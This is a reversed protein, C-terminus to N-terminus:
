ISWLVAPGVITAAALVGGMMAGTVGPLCADTGTLYLGPITTRPALARARFREPSCSLGYIEGREYNAFHRTTVPTSLECCDIRARTGPLNRELEGLLRETLDAKLSDYDEGRRKWRTDSWREFWDYPVPAIVEITSRGPYRKEFTPDKASPFSIFIVPFAAEGSPPSQEFRRLSEDHDPQDYIWLNTGPPEAEGQERKLGVYLCLHAMSAPIERLPGPTSRGGLLRRFTNSAGADSIVIPARLERGDAMRVGVARGGEELIRSVDANVLIRGGSAEVVPVISAAMQAAGGVPYSAGEWYHHAIIAHIAFRSRAPPLGYDGWQGTLVGILEQNSTLKSLVQGTTQNAWRMFPWRMLGGFLWALPAPVSKEAMYLSLWRVCRFVADIYGDIAAAESPFYAKMRERFRNVGTPFDYVKSGIRIQDYVDPMPSWRLQGETLHDFIRRLQFRPHQVRGIYHVGVDWEYGPRHFVHTFGGAVYHRELVLVRKHAHKALLAAATLGGIGSGIVIADYTEESTYRNYSQGIKTM